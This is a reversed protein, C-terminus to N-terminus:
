KKLFSKVALFVDEALEKPREFAAYHGGMDLTTTGVLNPYKWRLVFDPQPLLEHQLRLGWTPVEVPINVMTIEEENAFSEKYLRLSTTISSTTWYLMINDLLNTISFKSLGGDQLFKNAPDSFILFRDLIYSTLGLPSDTLAIGITDPKTGQLHMYGFEELFFEFKNKLPYMREELGHAVMSPWIGGLIWTLFALKSFNVPLNTHFGLVEKPFITAMHTGISHGFDGGQIYYQKFGVRQMLNRMIIAVHLPSLGPKSTAQSYIFGPLSPAIIEFVFDYGPQPTTLLPIVEYFERISSPWGHLLLLPLVKINSEVQPKVHIFHIDLGQINTKFHDFKNLFKERERFSYKFQWHAFVQALADSNTGYEWSETISKKRSAIARYVEFKKRLSETMADSFLVRFPRISTDQHGTTNVGWNYNLDLKPLDPVTTIKAFVYGFAIATVVTLLSTILLFIKLCSGCKKERAKQDKVTKKSVNEKNKNSKSKEVM